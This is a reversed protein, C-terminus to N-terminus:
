KKNQKDNNKQKNNKNVIYDNFKKMLSVTEKQKLFYFISIIICFLSIETAVKILGVDQKIYQAFLENSSLFIFIEGAFKGSSNSLRDYLTKYKSGNDINYFINEKLDDFIIYKITRQIAQKIHLFFLIKLSHKKINCIDTYNESFLMLGLLLFIIVASTLLNNTFLKFDNFFRTKEQEKFKKINRRSQYLKTLGSLIGTFLNNFNIFFSNFIYSSYKDLDDEYVHTRSSDSLTKGARCWAKVKNKVWSINNPNHAISHQVDRSICRLLTTIIFYISTCWFLIMVTPETTLEFLDNIPFISSKSTKIRKMRKTYFNNDYKVNLLYTIMFFCIQLFVLLIFVMSQLCSVWGKWNLFDNPFFILIIEFVIMIVSTFIQTLTNVFTLRSISKEPTFDTSNKNNVCFTTRSKVYNNFLYYLVLINTSSSLDAVIKMLTRPWNEIVKGFGSTIGRQNLFRVINQLWGYSNKDISIKDWGRNNFLFYFIMYLATLISTLVPLEWEFQSNPKIYLRIKNLLLPLVRDVIVLGIIISFIAKIWSTNSPTTKGLLTTLHTKSKVFCYCAFCFFACIDFLFNLFFYYKEQKNIEINKNKKKLKNLKSRYFTDSIKDIFLTILNM